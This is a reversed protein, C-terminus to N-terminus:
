RRLSMSFNLYSDNFDDDKDDESVIIITQFEKDSVIKPDKVIAKSWPGNKGKKSYEFLCQVTEGESNPGFPVTTDGDTTNMMVAEGHGEFVTTADGGWVLTVRQNYTANSMCSVMGMEMAPITITVPNTTDGM